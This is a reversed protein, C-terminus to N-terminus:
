LGVRQKEYDALISEMVAVGRDAKDKTMKNNAVLRGYVQKRMTVERRLVAIKEDRGILEDQFLDM